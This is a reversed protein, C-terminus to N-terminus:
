FIQFIAVEKHLHVDVDLFPNTSIAFKEPSFHGFVVPSSSLLFQQPATRNDCIVEM